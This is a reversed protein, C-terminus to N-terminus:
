KDSKRWDIYEGTKIRNDPYPEDSDIIWNRGIKEATKFGGRAAKQRVTTHAKDHMKAYEAIPILM